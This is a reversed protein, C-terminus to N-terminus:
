GDPTDILTKLRAALDGPLRPLWLEDILGVDIADRVNVKDNIRFVDLSVRVLSEFPVIRFREGKVALSVDTSAFEDKSRITDVALVIKVTARRNADPGDMFTLPNGSEGRVFGGRQLERAARELDDRHILISVDQTYRVASADIRAIWEMYASDGIVAYPIDARKLAATSRLLRERVMEVARIM